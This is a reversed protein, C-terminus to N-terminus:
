HRGARGEHHAEDPYKEVILPVQSVVLGTACKYRRRFYQGCNSNTLMAKGDGGELRSGEAESRTSVWMLKNEHISPKLRWRKLYLHTIAATNISREFCAAQQPIADGIRFQVSLANRWDRARPRLVHLYGCWSNRLLAKLEALHWACRAGHLARSGEM